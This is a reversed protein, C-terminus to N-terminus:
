WGALRARFKSPTDSIDNHLATRHIEHTKLRQASNIGRQTTVAALYNQKTLNIAQENYDGNPFCFLNIETGLKQQLIRRSEVVEQQLASESLEKNLRRHSCTHSGTNVLGSAQMENLQQWDMLAPRSQNFSEQWEISNLATYIEDESYKKLQKICEAASEASFAHKALQTAQEFMPHLRLQNHAGMAILEIVINPWFRFCTGIKNAVAFLTAPAQHAKLIPLAYEYNDLWGDDFTIACAKPPLKEGLKFRNLWDELDVIEFLKKLETIHMNLTDPTVIMGPEELSARPDDKPLIRHYMLVWLKNKTTPLSHQGFNSKTVTIAGKVLTKINM